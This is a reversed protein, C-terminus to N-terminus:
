SMLRMHQLCSTCTSSPTHATQCSWGCRIPNFESVIVAELEAPTLLGLDVLVQVCMCPHLLLCLTASCPVARRSPACSDPVNRLDQTICMCARPTLSVAGETLSNVAGTRSGRDLNWCCVPVSMACCLLATRVQMEHRSSNWEQLRGEVRRREVVAVRYGQQQLALAVCIGLTGGCMIV